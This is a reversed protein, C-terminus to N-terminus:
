SVLGYQEKMLVDYNPLDEIKYIKDMEFGQLESRPTTAACTFMDTKSDNYYKIEVGGLAISEELSFHTYARCDPCEADYDKGKHKSSEWCHGLRLRSIIKESSM